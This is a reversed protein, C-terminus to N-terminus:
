WICVKLCNVLVEIAASSLPEAERVFCTVWAQMYTKPAALTFDIILSTDVESSQADLLVRSLNVLHSPIHVRVDDLHMYLAGDHATCRVGKSSNGM